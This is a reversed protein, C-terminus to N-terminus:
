KKIQFKWGKCINKNKGYKNDKCLSVKSLSVGTFKSADVMTVFEFVEGTLTNTAVVPISVHNDVGICKGKRAKSIKDKLEQSHKKGYLYHNDGSIKKSLNDKWEQTKHTGWQSNKEGKAAESMKKRTIKNGGINGKTNTWRLNNYHNNHKNTDIHDVVNYKDADKNEVFLLAVIRHLLYRKRVGDKYLYVRKYEENSSECIFKGDKGKVRGYNSFLYDDYDLFKKWEEM